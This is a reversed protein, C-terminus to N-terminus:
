KIIISYNEQNLIAGEIEIGEELDKKILTKSPESSLSVDINMENILPTILNKIQNFNETNLSGIKINNRLYKENNFNNDLEVRTSRRTSLKFTDFNWRYIPFGSKQIEKQGFLKIIETMTVDVRENAKTKALKLTNLRHVEKEIAAISGENELYIEKLDIIAREATEQNVSLRESIEPTLEGYSEELMNQLIIQNQTLKYLNM